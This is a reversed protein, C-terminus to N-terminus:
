KKFKINYELRLWLKNTTGHVWYETWQILDYFEEILKSPLNEKQFNDTVFYINGTNGWTQNMKSFFKTLGNDFYVCLCNTFVRVAVVKKNLKSKLQRAFKNVKNLIKM